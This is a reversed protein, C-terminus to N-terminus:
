EQKRIDIHDAVQLEGSADLTYGAGLPDASPDLFTDIRKYQYDHLFQWPTGRTTFVSTVAGVVMAVLWASGAVALTWRWAEFMWELYTRGSGDDQLFVQWDWTM